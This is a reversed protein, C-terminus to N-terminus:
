NFKIDAPLHPPTFGHIQQFLELNKQMYQSYKNKIEDGLRVTGQGLHAFATSSIKKPVYNAQWMRELHDNDEFYAPKFDENFRVEAFAYKDILFFSYSGDGHSVRNDTTNAVCAVLGCKTDTLISIMKYLEIKTPPRSDLGSVFAYQAGQAFVSELGKNWAMALCNETNKIITTGQLEAIESTQKNIVTTVKFVAKLAKLGTNIMLAHDENEQYIVAIVNM